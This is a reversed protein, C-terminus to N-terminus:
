YSFVRVFYTNVLVRALSENSTAFDMFFTEGLKLNVLLPPSSLYAKLEEFAKNCQDDWALKAASRLIKFFPLCKKTSRFIFRNLAAIRKVMKQIDKVLKPPPMELVAKIKKPKIGRQSVMFGLFKSADVSFM